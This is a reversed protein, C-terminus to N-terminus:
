LPKGLAFAAFKVDDPVRLSGEIDKVVLGLLQLPAALARMEETAPHDIKALNAIIRLTKWGETDLGTLKSLITTM